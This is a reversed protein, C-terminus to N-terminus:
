VVPSYPRYLAAIFDHQPASIVRPAPKPAPLPVLEGDPDSTTTIAVAILDEKTFLGYFYNQLEEQMKSCMPALILKSHSDLSLTNEVETLKQDLEAGFVEKREVERQREAYFQQMQAKAREQAEWEVPSMSVTGGINPISFNIVRWQESPLKVKVVDSLWCRADSM